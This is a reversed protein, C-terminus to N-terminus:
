GKPSPRNNAARFARLNEKQHTLLRLDSLPYASCILAFGAEEDEPFVRLAESEDVRGELVRAACTTCWGQLCMYPLDAGHRVASELIYEQPRCPFSFEGEPTVLVINYAAETETM